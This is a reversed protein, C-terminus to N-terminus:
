ENVAIPLEAGDRLAQYNQLNNNMANMLDREEWSPISEVNVLTLHGDILAYYRYQKDIPVKWIEHAGFEHSKTGEKVTAAVDRLNQVLANYLDQAIKAASKAEDLTRHAEILKGDQEPLDEELITKYKGRLNSIEFEDMFRKATVKCNIAIFSSGMFKQAEEPTLEADNLVEQEVGEPLAPIFNEPKYDKLIEM